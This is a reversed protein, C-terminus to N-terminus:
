SSVPPPERQEFRAPDDATGGLRGAGPVQAVLRSQRFGVGPQRLHPHPLSLADRLRREGLGQGRRWQRVEGSGGGLGDYEMPLADDIWTNSQLNYERRTGKRYGGSVAFVEVPSAAEFEGASAFWRLADIAHCGGVLFASVGQAITRADSWGSWWSGNHSLYDTEVYYPNGLANDALMAKLTRFLPNWRLVFGVVTHVGARRVAQRMAHLEELSIGVPKEILMHKGAKAAALVQRCHVHQPTCISVIDVGPHRLAKELDDYLTM